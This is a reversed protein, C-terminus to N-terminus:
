YTVQNIVVAVVGVVVVIVALAASLLCHPLLRLQQQEQRQGATLSIRERRSAKDARESVAHLSLLM